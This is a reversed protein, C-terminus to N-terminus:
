VLVQVLVDDGALIEALALADDHGGVNARSVLTVGAERIRGDEGAAAEM